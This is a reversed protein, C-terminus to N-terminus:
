QAYKGEWNGPEGEKHSNWTTVAIGTDHEAMECDCHDCHIHRMPSFDGNVTFGHDAPTRIRIVVRRMQYGDRVDLPHLQYGRGCKPCLIERKM